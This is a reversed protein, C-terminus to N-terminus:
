SKSRDFERRLWARGWTWQDRVWRESREMVRAIEVETLGGFFRHIVVTAAPEDEAALKELADNLELIEVMSDDTVSLAEDLTVRVLGGGRKVANRKRAYDVLIQQMVRGALGLFHERSQIVTRGDLSMRLFVEHVLETPRLTHGPREQNMRRRALDRLEDYLRTFDDASLGRPHPPELDTV